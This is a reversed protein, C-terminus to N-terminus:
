YLPVTLKRLRIHLTLMHHSTCLSARFPNLRIQIHPYWRPCSHPIRSVSAELKYVTAKDAEHDNPTPM